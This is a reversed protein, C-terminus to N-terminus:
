PTQRTGSRSRVPSVRDLAAVHLQVRQAVEHAHAGVLGRSFAGDPHFTWETPAVFRWDVVVDHEVLAWHALRGRATDAVGCGGHSALETAEGALATARVRAPASALEVLRAALRALAGRGHTDIM